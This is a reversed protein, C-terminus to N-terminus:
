KMFHRPVFVASVVAGTVLDGLNLLVVIKICEGFAVSREEANEHFKKQLVLSFIVETM